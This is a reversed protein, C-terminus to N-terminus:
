FLCFFSINLTFNNKLQIKSEYNFTLLIYGVKNRCCKSGCCIQVIATQHFVAKEDDKRKVKSPKAGVIAINSLGFLNHEKDLRLITSLYKDEFNNRELLESESALSCNSWSSAPSMSPSSSITYNNTFHEITFTYVSCSLNLKKKELSIVM